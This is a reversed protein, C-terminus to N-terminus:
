ETNKKIKEIDNNKVWGRKEDLRILTWGEESQDHMVITGAHLQFLLKEREDPGSLVNVEESLIVARSDTADYYYKWAWSIGSVLWLVLLVVPFYYTWEKKIYLRLILACWFLLNIIVFIIFLENLTMSETWFLIDSLFSSPVDAADKVFKRVYQLNYELDPNRPMVRGAREYYLVAHGTMNLRYCTNGMNYWLDGSTYGSKEIESYVNLAEDYAGDKYLQNAKYFLEEINSSNEASFLFSPVAILIALLFLRKM